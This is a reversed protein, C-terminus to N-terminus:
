SLMKKVAQIIVYSFTRVVYKLLINAEDDSLEVPCDADKNEKLPDASHYIKSGLEHEAINEGQMYMINGIQKAIDIRVEQGEVDLFTVKTLDVKKM